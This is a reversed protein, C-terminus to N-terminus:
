TNASQRISPKRKQGRRRSKGSRRMAHMSAGACYAVSFGSIPPRTFTSTMRSCQSSMMRKTAVSLAPVTVGPIVIREARLKAILRDILIRGDVFGIAESALSPALEARLPHPLDRYGHRQKILALQEYRTAGRRAFGALAGADIDIQEAIHDLMIAPLTEGERLHRGPYRLCCLQLAYGLRTKPTRARAIAVLDDPSLSHYRVVADETDPLALLAARQREIMPVRAPM